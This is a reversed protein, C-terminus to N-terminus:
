LVSWSADRPRDDPPVLESISPCKSIGHDFDICITVLNGKENPKLKVSYQFIRFICLFFKQFRTYVIKKENKTM